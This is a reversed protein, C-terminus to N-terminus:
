RHAVSVCFMACPMVNPTDHPCDVLEGDPGIALADGDSDWDGIWWAAPEGDRDRVIRNSAADGFQFADMWEDPSPGFVTERNALWVLGHETPAIASVLDEPLRELFQYEMTDLGDCPPMGDALQFTFGLVDGRDNLSRNVGVLRARVPVDGDVMVTKSEGVRRAYPAPNSIARDSLRAIRGWDMDEFTPLRATLIPVIGLVDSVPHRQPRGDPGIAICTGQAM